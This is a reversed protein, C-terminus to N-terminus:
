YGCRVSCTGSLSQAAATDSLERQLVKMLCCLTSGGSGVRKGGPDAVVLVNQEEPLLGLRLRLDLQARYGAAQDENSATIILYHWM